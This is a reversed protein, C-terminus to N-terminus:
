RGIRSCIDSDSCVAANPFVHLVSSSPPQPVEPNPPTLVNLAASPPGRDIRRMKPNMLGFSIGFLALILGGFVISLILAKYCYNLRMWCGCFRSLSLASWTLIFILTKLLYFYTNWLLPFWTLCTFWHLHRDKTHAGIEGASSILYGRDNRILRPPGMVHSVINNDRSFRLWM